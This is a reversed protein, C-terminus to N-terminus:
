IFQSIHWSPKGQVETKGVIWTGEAFSMNCIGLIFITFLTKKMGSVFRMSAAATRLLERWSGTITHNSLLILCWGSGESQDKGSKRLLGIQSNRNVV